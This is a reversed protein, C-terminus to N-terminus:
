PGRESLPHLRWRRHHWSWLRPNDRILGETIKLMRELDSELTGQGSQPIPERIEFRWRPEAALTAVPLVLAESKRALHAPGPPIAMDKGLFRMVLGDQAKKTGQDISIYVVRNHRLAKLMKAYAALGENALIAEVGYAAIGQEFFGSEMMPAERHAVSLPIGREALHVLLLATNGMHTGLLIVGRGRDLAARLNDIGSVEVQTMLAQTGQHRDLAKLIELVVANSLRFAQRLTEKAERENELALVTEMERTMRKRSRHLLRFQLEGLLFGLLRVQKFSLPRVGVRCLRFLARRAAREVRLWM